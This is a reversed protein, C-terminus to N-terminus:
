QMRDRVAQAIPSTSAAADPTRTPELICGHRGDESYLKMATRDPYVYERGHMALPVQM